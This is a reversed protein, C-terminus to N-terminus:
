RCALIFVVASQANQTGLSSKHRIHSRLCFAQRWGTNMSAVAGSLVASCHVLYRWGGLTCYIERFTGAFAPVWMIRAGRRRRFNTVAKLPFFRRYVGSLKYSTYEGYCTLTFTVVLWIATSHQWNKKGWTPERCHPRPLRPDVRACAPRSVLGRASCLSGFPIPVYSRGSGSIVILSRRFFYRAIRVMATLLAVDTLCPPSRCCWCSSLCFFPWGSRRSVGGDVWRADVIDTLVTM